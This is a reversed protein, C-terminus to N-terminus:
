DLMVFGAWDYPNPRLVKLKRQAATFAAHKDMGGLWNDYFYQMLMSTAEDPVKWLSMVLTNVGALKFARQLGFVGEMAMDEGLGTECASLVAMDTHSLDLNSIENATLIGDEIGDILDQGRWARNAGAFLLGSHTMMQQNEPIKMAVAKMFENSQIQRQDSLYFGHTAVHLLRPSNGSLAKFSEENASVDTLLRNSIGSDGLKQSIMTSEEQTGPLYVWGARDGRGLDFGRSASRNSRTYSRSGALLASEEADYRIGGYVVGNDIKDDPNKFAIVEATSSVLRLDYRDCLQISDSTIANFSIANLQGIPSYYVTSINNAKLESDIPAWIANYLEQGATEIKARRTGVRYSYTGNGYLYARYHENRSTEDNIRMLQEPVKTISALSDDVCLSIVKPLKTSSTILVAAYENAGTFSDDKLVPLQIFEIAAEGNSLNKRIDNWDLLFGQTLTSYDVNDRVLEKELKMIVGQYYSVSDPTLTQSSILGQMDAISQLKTRDNDSGVSAIRDILWNSARLLLGKSFLANNYITGYNKDKGDEIIFRNYGNLFGGTQDWYNFRQSESLFLFNSLVEQKLLDSFEVAKGGLKKDGNLYQSSVLNFRCLASIPSNGCRAAAKGFQDQAKVTNGQLLYICGLNNHIQAYTSSFTKEPLYQQARIGANIAEDLNGMDNYCVMLSAYQIAIEEPNVNEIGSLIDLSTEFYMSALLRNGMGMTAIALNGLCRAYEYGMDGREELKQKVHQLISNSNEYDKVAGYVAGLDIWLKIATEQSQPNTDIDPLHNLAELYAGEADKMNGVGWAIRGKLQYLVAYLKDIKTPLGDLIAISQNVKATASAFDRKAMDRNISQVISNLKDIDGQSVINLLENCLRSYIEHSEFGCEEFVRKAKRYLEVADKSGADDAIYAHHYYPLIFNFDNLKKVEEYNADLISTTHAIAALAGKMDNQKWLVCAYLYSSSVEYVGNDAWCDVNNLYFTKANDFDEAQILKQLQVLNNDQPENQAALPVAMFLALLITSLIKKM